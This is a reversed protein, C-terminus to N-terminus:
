KKSSKNIDKMFVDVFWLLAVIYVVRMIYPFIGLSYVYAKIAGTILVIIFIIWKSINIRSFVYPKLAYYLIVGLIVYVVSSTISM